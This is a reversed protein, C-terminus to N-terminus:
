CVNHHADELAHFLLENDENDYKKFAEICNEITIFIHTYESHM